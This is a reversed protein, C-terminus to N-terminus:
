LRHQFQDGKVGLRVQFRKDLNQFVKGLTDVNVDQIDQRISDNLQEITRPTNQVSQGEIPGLSLLRCANTRRGKTELKKVL